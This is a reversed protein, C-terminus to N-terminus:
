TYLNLLAGESPRKSGRLGMLCNAILTTVLLYGKFLEAHEILIVHDLQVPKIM